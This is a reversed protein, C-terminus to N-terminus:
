NPTIMGGEMADAIHRRLTHFFYAPSFRDFGDMSSEQVRCDYARCAHAQVLECGSSYVDALTLPYESVTRENAVLWDIYRVVIDPQVLVEDDVPILHDIPAHLLARNDARLRQPAVSAPRHRVAVVRDDRDPMAGPMADQNPMHVHDSKTIHENGLVM